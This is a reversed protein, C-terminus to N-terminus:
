RKAWSHRATNIGIRARSPAPRHRHHANDRVYRPVAPRVSGSQEPQLLPPRAPLSLVVHFYGVPLLDAEPRGAVRTRRYRPVEPL